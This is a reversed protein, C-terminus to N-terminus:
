EPRRHFRSRTSGAATAARDVRNPRPGRRTHDRRWPRVLRRARPDYADPEAGAGPGQARYGSGRPAGSRRGGGSTSSRDAPEGARGRPDRGSGEERGGGQAPAQLEGAASPQVTAGRHVSLRESRRNRRRAASGGSTNALVDVAASAPDRRVARADAYRAPERRVARVGAPEDDGDRGPRGPQIRREVGRG